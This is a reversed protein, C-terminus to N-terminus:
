KNDAAHRSRFLGSATKKWASIIAMECDVIMGILFSPSLKYLKAIKPLARDPPLSVGREWNSVFQGNLYGLAKSVDCQRLGAKERAKKLPIGVHSKRIVNTQDPVSSEGETREGHMSPLSIPM